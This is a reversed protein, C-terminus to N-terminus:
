WLTNGKIGAPLDIKLNGEKLDVKSIYFYACIYVLYKEPDNYSYHFDWEM